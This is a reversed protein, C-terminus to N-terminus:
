NKNPYIIKDLDIIRQEFHELKKLIDMEDPHHKVANHILIKTEHISEIIKNIETYFKIQNEFYKIDLEITKVNLNINNKEISVRLMNLRNIETELTKIM